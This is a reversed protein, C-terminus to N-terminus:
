IFSLKSMWISQVVKMVEKKPIQNAIRRINFTRKNLAAQLVSFHEHWNQKDDINVGLLKTSSSRPVTEGGVYTYVSSWEALAIGLFKTKRKFLIKQLNQELVNM